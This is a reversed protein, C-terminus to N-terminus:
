SLMHIDIDVKLDVKFGIIIKKFSKVIPHHNLKFILCLLLITMESLLCQYFHILRLM